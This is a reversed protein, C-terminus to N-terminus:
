VAMTLDVVAERGITLVIGSRVETQLGQAKATLKYNGLPLLLAAYRGAADSQVTRAIGTDENLVDIQAGALVGGSSDKVTGSISGTVTQAFASAASLCIIAVIASAVLGLRSSM